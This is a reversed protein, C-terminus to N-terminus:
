SRGLVKAFLAEADALFAAEAASGRVAIHRFHGLTKLAARFRPSDAEHVVSGGDARVLM